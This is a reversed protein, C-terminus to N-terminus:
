IAYNIGYLIYLIGDSIKGMKILDEGYSFYNYSTPSFGNKEYLFFLYKRTNEIFKTINFEYNVLLKTYFNTLVERKEFCGSTANEKFDSLYVMLNYDEDIGKCTDKRDLDKLNLLIDYWGKATYFRWYKKNLDDLSKSMNLRLLVQYKLEKCVYTNCELSSVKKELDEIMKNLESETINPLYNPNNSKEIYCLSAATYFRGEKILEEITSNDIGKCIDEAINKITDFYKEPINYSINYEKNFFIEDLDLITYAQIINDSLDSPAVLKKGNNLSANLKERIGSVPFIVGNPLLFGTVAYDKMFRNFAGMILVGFGATGSFGEARFYKDTYFLYDYKNCNDYIKCVANKAFLFTYLYEGQFNSPLEVFVRGSGDIAKICFETLVGQNESIAPIKLCRNLIEKNQIVNLYYIGILSFFLIILAKLLNNMKITSSMIM